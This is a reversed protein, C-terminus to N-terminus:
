DSWGSASSHFTEGAEAKRRLLEPVRYRDDGCADRELDLTAVIRDLGIEDAKALPGRPFGAGLRMALDIDSPDAADVELLWSGISAMMAYLPLPDFADADSEAYDPGPGTEYDYFGEGTKRGLEGAALKETLIPPTSRGAERRVSADVDLGVLDALEFPGMPFGEILAMRGDIARIPVDRRSAQWMAEGIFGELISTTLFGRVDKRCVVPTKGMSQALEVTREVTADDTERGRVVEVLPMRVAPNFFHMGLVREPRRTAAAIETIPLSSTNTALVADGPTIEDLQGFLEQKTKLDEPAAEVVVDAASAAETLDTSFTIRGLTPDVDDSAVHGHEALKTLSARIQAEAKTLRDSDVDFLRVRWGAMAGLEAIGHGMTGAGLVTMKSTTM